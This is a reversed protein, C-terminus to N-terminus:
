AHATYDTKRETANWLCTLKNVRRREWVTSLLVTLMVGIKMPYSTHAPYKETVAVSM